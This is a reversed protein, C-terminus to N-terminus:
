LMEGLSPVHSILKKLEQIDSLTETVNSLKPMSNQKM